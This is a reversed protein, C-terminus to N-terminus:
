RHDLEAVLDSVEEVQVVLRALGAPALIPPARAPSGVALGAGLSAAGLLVPTLVAFVVPLRRGNAATFVLGIALCAM